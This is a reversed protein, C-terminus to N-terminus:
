HKSDLQKPKKNNSHQHYQVMQTRFLININIAAKLTSLYPLRSITKHVTHGSCAIKIFGPKTNRDCFELAHNRSSTKTFRMYNKHNVFLLERHDRM